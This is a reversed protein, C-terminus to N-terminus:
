IINSAEELYKQHLNKVSKKLEDIDLDNILVDDVIKLRQAESPQSSLISLAQERSCHDRKIVRAIQNEQTSSVLLVM